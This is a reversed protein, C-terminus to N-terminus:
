YTVKHLCFHDNGTFVSYYNFKVFSQRKMRAFDLTSLFELFQLFKKGLGGHQDVLNVEDDYRKGLITPELFAGSFTEVGGFDDLGFQLFTLCITLRTYSAFSADPKSGDSFKNKDSVLLNTKLAWRCCFYLLETLGKHRKCYALLLGTAAHERPSKLGIELRKRFSELHQSNLRVFENIHHTVRASLPDFSFNFLLPAHGLETSMREQRLVNLRNQRVQFAFTNLGM